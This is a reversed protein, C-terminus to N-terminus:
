VRYPVQSQVIDVKDLSTHYTALCDKILRKADNLNAAPGIVIKRLSGPELKRWDFERYLVSSTGRLRHKVDSPLKDSSFLQLFRYENENRYAPHKFFMVSRIAQLSHSVLLESMYNHLQDGWLPITRPLSILPDILDILSNQLSTLENGDYTVHFTSHEKIPNGNRKTFADELSSTDFGLVFGQGNDGYARWQSLDDGVASFCCIFFHAVAELGSDLDFREFASAFTAIEPRRDTARLKLQDIAIRLGHRMESPDNQAFINSFWLTGSKIIGLLGSANTYQYLITPPKRNEIKNLFTQLQDTAKADYDKIARVPNIETLNPSIM